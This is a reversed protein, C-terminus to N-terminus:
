IDAPQYTALDENYVKEEVEKGDIYYYCAWWYKVTKFVKSKGGPWTVMIEKEDTWFGKLVSTVIHPSPIYNLPGTSAMPKFGALSIEREVFATTEILQRIQMERVQTNAKTQRQREKDKEILFERQGKVEAQRRLASVVSNVEADEKMQNYKEINNKKESEAVMKLLNNEYAARVTQNDKKQNEREQKERELQIAPAEMTPDGTPTVTTTPTIAPNAPQTLIPNNQNKAQEEALKRLREEEALRDKEKQEAERKLREEEKKRAEEAPDKFVEDIFRYSPDDYFGAGGDYIVKIFPKKAYLDTNVKPDNPEFFPIEVQYDPYIWSKDPPVKLDMTMYMGVCGPASFSIKYTHGIDITFKFKGNKGTTLNIIQTKDDMLVTVTAGSLPQGGKTATGFFRLDGQANLKAGMFLLAFVCVVIKLIGSHPHMPYNGRNFNLFVPFLSRPIPSSSHPFPTINVYYLNLNAILNRM